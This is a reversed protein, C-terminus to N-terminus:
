AYAHCYKNSPPQQQYKQCADEASHIKHQAKPRDWFEFLHSILEFHLHPVFAPNCTINRTENLIGHHYPIM